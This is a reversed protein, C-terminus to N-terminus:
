LVLKRAIIAGFTSAVPAFIFDTQLLLIDASYLYMPYAIPSFTSLLIFNDFIVATEYKKNKINVFYYFAVIM